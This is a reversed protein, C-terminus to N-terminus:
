HDANNDEKNSSIIVITEKEPVPVAPTAESM